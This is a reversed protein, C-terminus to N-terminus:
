CGPLSMEVSECIKDKGVILAAEAKEVGFDIGTELLNFTYTRTEGQEPVEIDIDGSSVGPLDATKTGNIIEFRKSEGGGSLVIVLGNVEVDAYGVEIMVKALNSGSCTYQKDEVIKVMGLVDVCNVQPLSEKVWTILFGAILVVAAITILILLITAVVPSIGRKDCRM